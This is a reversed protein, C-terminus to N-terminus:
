NIPFIMFSFFITDASASKDIDAIETAWSLFGILIPKM